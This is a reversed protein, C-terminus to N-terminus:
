KFDYMDKTAELALGQGILGRYDLHHSNYFGIKGEVNALAFGEEMLQEEWTMSNMSRLYPRVNVLFTDASGEISIIMPNDDSYLANIGKVTIDTKTVLDRCKVGFPLRSSLDELLLKKENETM